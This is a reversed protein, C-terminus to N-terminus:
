RRASARTLVVNRGKPGLTVKAADALIDAGRPMRARADGGFRVDKAAMNLARGVQTKIMTSNQDHRRGSLSPKAKIIGMIHFEKMMLLEEGDLKVQTGSWKGFLIRNNAKVDLPM